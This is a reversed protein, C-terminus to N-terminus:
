APLARGSLFLKRLNHVACTLIWEGTVLGLGRLSFRDGGLAGKIHGFPAEAAQGRRRYVAFGKKTLLKREMRERRNMDKPLRGRPAGRERLEKRQKWDKKTAIFLEPGNEEITEVPLSEKWYGADAALAKPTEAIGVDRLNAMTEALVPELLNVDNGEQSVETAVIFQEETVMIQSNYGQIFGKRTKVIRSDPDTINAKAKNGTLKTPDSSSRKVTKEKNEPHDSDNSDRDDNSARAKAAEEEAVAELRKKAQLLRSLRKRPDGMEPPLQDERGHTGFRADEEQDVQEAQDLIKDIEYRIKELTRNAELAASAKIKTGDLFLKEINIAKAESCLRLVELFIHKFTDIHKRRFRCIATHKPLINGAIWRFTIDEECAKTILISSRLGKSYAYILIGLMHRPDFPPKGETAYANYIPKLDIIGLSDWIFRALHDKKLWDDVSPPLLYIQDKNGVVFGRPM